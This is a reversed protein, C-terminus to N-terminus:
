ECEGDEKGIGTDCTKREIESGMGLNSTAYDAGDSGADSGDATPFFVEASVNLPFGLSPQCLEEQLVKWPGAAAWDHTNSETSGLRQSQLCLLQELVYRLYDVKPELREVLSCSANNRDSADSRSGDYLRRKTTASRLRRLKSSTVATAM